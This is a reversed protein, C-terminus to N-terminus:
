HCLRGPFRTMVGIVIKRVCSSLVVMIAATNEVAIGCEISDRKSSRDITFLGGDEVLRFLTDGGMSVVEGLDRDFAMLLCTTGVRILATGTCGLRIFDVGL